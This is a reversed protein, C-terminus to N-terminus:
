QTISYHVKIYFVINFLEACGQMFWTILCNSTQQLLGPGPPCLLHPSPYHLIATSHSRYRTADFYCDLIERIVIVIVMDMMIVMFVLISIVIVKFIVIIIVIIIMIGIILVMPVM